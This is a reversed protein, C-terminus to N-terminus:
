LGLEEWIEALTKELRERLMMYHENCLIAYRPPKAAIFYRVRGEDTSGLECPGKDTELRGCRKEMFVKIGRPKPKRM